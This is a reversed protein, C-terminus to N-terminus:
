NELLKEAEQEADVLKEFITNYGFAYAFLSAKYGKKTEVLPDAGSQLLMDVMHEYGYKSAIILATAGARNTKNPDAGHSLLTEVVLRDGTIAAMMLPTNGSKNPADVDYGNSLLIDLNKVDGEHVSAFVRDDQAQASAVCVIVLLASLFTFVSKNTKM